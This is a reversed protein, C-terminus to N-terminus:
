FVRAGMQFLPHSRLLALSIEGQPQKPCLPPDFILRETDDSQQRRKSQVYARWVSRMTVQGLLSILAALMPVSRPIATPWFFAVLFSLVVGVSLAAAAIYIVEDFSGYQWRRRYQGYALGFLGQLAVALAVGPVLDWVFHDLSFDFRVFTALPLAIALLLADVLFHVVPLRRASVERTSSM